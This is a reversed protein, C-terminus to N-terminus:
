DKSCRGSFGYTKNLDDGSVQASNFYLSRSWANASSGETSSWFYAYGALADFGGGTYRLAGPLATFGSSNTAGTNPSLWHTTGVEKVKGGAVSEGGLLTTLASWEADSPVHWGTPCIGQSGSPNSSGSATYNMYEDWQYLGGYVNCNAEDDNYCYKEITGNSTQNVTGNIRTGVNLNQAMWCQFGIVFTAYSKGEYVLTGCSKGDSNHTWNTGDFWCLSKITTNYITLGEVPSAILNMQVSTMRPPLFGKSTSSIDVMASGSPAATGIGVNGQMMALSSGSGTIYATSNGPYYNEGNWRHKVVGAGFLELWSSDQRTRLEVSWGSATALFMGAQTGKDNIPNYLKLQEYAADQVVLKTDPNGNGIGVNGSNYFIKSGFYLWQSNVMIWNKVAPTGKNTYFGNNDTCFVLLGTAPNSIADREGFTMRPVLVGKTTSKVDLIASSNAASGDENVGIQAIAAASLLLCCAFIMSIKKM